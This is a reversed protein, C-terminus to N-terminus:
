VNSIVHCQTSVLLINAMGFFVVVHGMRKHWIRPKKLLLLPMGITVMLLLVLGVASHIVFRFHSGHSLHVYVIVLVLGSLGLLIGLPQLIKHALTVKNHALFAGIPLLFGFAIAMLAAHTYLLEILHTNPVGGAAGVIITTNLEPNQECNITYLGPTQLELSRVDTNPFLTNVM